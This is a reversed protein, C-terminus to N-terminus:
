WNVILTGSVQELTISSESPHGTLIEWKGNVNAEVNGAQMVELPPFLTVKAEKLGTVQLARVKKKKSPTPKPDLPLCHVVGDEKQEVYIRCEGHFVRDLSYHARGSRLVASEGVILPAGHPFRFSFSLATHYKFGNFWTANDKNATFVLATQVSRDAKMQHLEYGFNQLMYRCLVAPDINCDERKIPLSSVQGTTFPLSGRIWAVSGGQWGPLKRYAAFIREIGDQHVSALIKTSPDHHDKVIEKLTGGSLMSPHYVASSQRKSGDGDEQLVSDDTAMDADLTVRGELGDTQQINLLSQVAPDSVVGYIFVRGGSEVYQVITEAWAGELLSAPIFLITNKKLNDVVHEPMRLFVDTAVVTNLPFGENIANRVFWEEFFITQAGEPNKKALDHYEVFPYLWTVAGPADPFDRLARKIHPIVEEATDATLEGYETDITLFEIMGPPEPKGDANLRSASLPCYIDYPQRNYLDRWPNQWFWPDNPYFRYPYTKGPLHAIRSMYGAMELGYDRNLPGWPSNPPPLDLFGKDYLAKLPICDKALDMGTGFNTGRVEIRFHPCEKHFDEWFSLVKSSLEEHDATGFQKSDYNAGLYTWPFYSFGLGNSLWIYDFGLKPLFSACQRGFFTGFSTGEPIGDPFGAYSRQDAKLKSWICIVKYHSRLQIQKGGLEAVNIEPHRHYKFDSHAFEPGADFTAGVQVQLGYEETGVRKLAAVIEQLTRYTIVAPNEKYLVAEKPDGEELNFCERNSFGIYRAWELEADWEENWELIESGDSVWLLISCTEASELLGRWQRFAERCVEAISESDTSTFPKLSMELTVREM